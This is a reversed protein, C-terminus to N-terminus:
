NDICIFIVKILEVLLKSLIYSILKPLHNITWTFNQKPTLSDLVGMKMQDGSGTPCPAVFSIDRLKWKRVSVTHVMISM